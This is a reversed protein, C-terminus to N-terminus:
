SALGLVRLSPTMFYCLSSSAAPRGVKLQTCNAALSKMIACVGDNGLGTLAGWLLAACLHKM